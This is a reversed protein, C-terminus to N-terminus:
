RIPMNPTSDHFAHAHLCHCTRAHPTHRTCTGRQRATSHGRQTTAAVGVQQRGQARGEARQIHRRSTADPIVTVEARLKQIFQSTLDVAAKCTSAQIGNHGITKWGAIPIRIAPASTDPPTPQSCLLAPLFHPAWRHLKCIAICFRPMFVHMTYCLHNSTNSEHRCGLPHLANERSCICAARM